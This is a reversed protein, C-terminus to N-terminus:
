SGIGISSRAFMRTFCNENWAVTNRWRFLIRNRFDESWDNTYLAKKVAQITNDVLSENAIQETKIARPTSHTVIWNVYVEDNHRENTENIEDVQGSILRSLPDAINTKVPKFIAKYKYSQLRLVWREIRACPKSKPSFIAELSKYDTVLEFERGFVYFHFREVSWVLALAEKEPQSYKRETNSLSRSAYSIVRPESNKFQILVAGLGVPSADAIIQTRFVNIPVESSTNPLNFYIEQVKPGAYDLLWDHKVADRIGSATAFVEFSRLWVKWETACNEKMVNFPQPGICWPQQQQNM